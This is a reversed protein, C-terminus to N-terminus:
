GGPPPSRPTRIHLGDRVRQAHPHPRTSETCSRFGSKAAAGSRQGSGAAGSKASVGPYSSCRSERGEAQQLLSEGKIDGFGESINRAM